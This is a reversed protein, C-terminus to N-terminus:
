VRTIQVKLEFGDHSSYVKCTAGMNWSGNRSYVKQITGRSDKVIFFGNWTEYNRFLYVDSIEGGLDQACSVADSLMRSSLRRLVDEFDSWSGHLCNEATVKVDITGVKIRIKYNGVMRAEVASDVMELISGRPLQALTRPRESDGSEGGGESNEEDDEGYAIEDQHKDVWKGLNGSLYDLGYHRYIEVLTKGLGPISEIFSVSNSNAWRGNITFAGTSIDVLFQFKGIYGLLVGRSGTPAPMAYAQSLVELVARPVEYLKSAKGMTPIKYEDFAGGEKISQIIAINDPYVISSDFERLTKYMEYIVDPNYSNRLNVAGKTYRTIKHRHSEREVDWLLVVDDGQKLIGVGGPIKDRPGLGLEVFAKAPEEESPIVYYTIKGKVGKKFYDLAHLTDEEWALKFRGPISIGTSGQVAQVMDRFLSYLDEHSEPNEVRARELLNYLNVTSELAPVDTIYSSYFKKNSLNFVISCWRGGYRSFVFMDGRRLNKSIEKLVAVDTVPVGLIDRSVPVIFDRCNRSRPDLVYINDQVQLDELKAKSFLNVSDVIDKICNPLPRGEHEHLFIYFPIFPIIEDDSLPRDKINFLRSDHYGYQLQYKDFKRDKPNIFIYIDDRNIHSRWYTDTKGSATCWGSSGLAEHDTRGLAISVPYNQEEGKPLKYILYGKGDAEVAGIKFKDVNVKKLKEDEQIEAVKALFANVDEKTKYQNIDKKDFKNKFKEFTKFAEVWEAETYGENGLNGEVYRKCMWTAYASKNGCSSVIKEFVTPRIRGSDVFQRRLDDISVELLLAILSSM